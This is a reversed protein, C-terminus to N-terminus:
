RRPANPSTTSCERLKTQPAVDLQARLREVVDPSEDLLQRRTKKPKRTSRAGHATTTRPSM